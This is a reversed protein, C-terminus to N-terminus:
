SLSIAEQGPQPGLERLVTTVGLQDMMARYHHVMKFCDGRRAGDASVSPIAVAETLRAIYSDLHADVYAFFRKRDDENVPEPFGM